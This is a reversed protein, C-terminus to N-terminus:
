QSCSAQVYLLLRDLFKLFSKCSHVFLLGFFAEGFVMRCAVLIITFIAYEPLHIQTGFGAETPPEKAVRVHNFLREEEPPVVLGMHYGLEEASILPIGHRYMIM